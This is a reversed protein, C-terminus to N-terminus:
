RLFWGTVGKILFRGFDGGFVCLIFDSEKFFYEVYWSGGGGAGLRKGLM